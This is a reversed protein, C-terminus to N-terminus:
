LTRMALFDIWRMFSSRAHTFKVQVDLMSRMQTLTDEVFAERSHWGRRVKVTMCKGWSVGTRTNRRLIRAFDTGCCVVLMTIM